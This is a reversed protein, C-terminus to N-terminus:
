IESNNGHNIKRDPTQFTGPPPLCLRDWFKLIYKVGELTDKRANRQITECHFTKAHRKLINIKAVKKIDTFAM